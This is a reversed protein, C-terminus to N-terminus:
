PTTKRKPNAVGTIPTEMRKSPIGTKPEDDLPPAQHWEAWPDGTTKAEGGSSKKRRRHWGNLTAKVDWDKAREELWEPCGNRRMCSWRHARWGLMVLGFAVVLAGPWWTM